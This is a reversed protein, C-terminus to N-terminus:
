DVLRRISEKSKQVELSFRTLLTQDLWQVTFSSKVPIISFILLLANM